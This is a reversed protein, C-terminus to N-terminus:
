RLHPWTNRHSRNSAVLVRPPHQFYRHKEQLRTGDRRTQGDLEKKLEVELEEGMRGRRRRMTRWRTRKRPRRSSSRRRRKVM